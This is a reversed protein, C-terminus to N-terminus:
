RSHMDLSGAAFVILIILVIFCTVGYPFWFWTADDRLPIVHALWCAFWFWILPSLLTAVLKTKM